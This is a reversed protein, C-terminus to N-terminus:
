GSHKVVPSVRASPQDSRRRRQLHLSLHQWGLDRWRWSVRREAHLPRGATGLQDATVRWEVRNRLSVARALQVAVKLLTKKFQQLGRPSDRLISSVSSSVTNHIESSDVPYTARADSPTCTWLIVRYLVTRKLVHTLNLFSCLFVILKLVIIM